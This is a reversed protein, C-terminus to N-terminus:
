LHFNLIDKIKNQPVKSGFIGYSHSFNATGLVLKKNIKM